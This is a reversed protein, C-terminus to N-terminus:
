QDVVEFDKPLITHPCHLDNQAFNDPDTETPGDWANPDRIRVAKKNASIKEVSAVEVVEGHLNEPVGSPEKLRIETGRRLNDM